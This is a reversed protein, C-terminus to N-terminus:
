KIQISQREILQAGPVERGAKLAESILTKSPEPAPPPKVPKFEDPVLAPDDIAVATVKRFSVKIGPGEIKTIGCAQLTDSLYERLREARAEAAKAREQARKAWEKAAEADAEIARIVHAVSQAKVELEGAMGELTDALTQEDLDMEMLKAADSRYQEAIAWLATM